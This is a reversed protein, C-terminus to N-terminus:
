WLVNIHEERCNPQPWHRHNCGLACMYSVFPVIDFFQLCGWAVSEEVGPTWVPMHPQIFAWLCLVSSCCKLPMMLAQLRKWFASCALSISCVRWWQSLFSGFIIGRLSYPSHMDSHAVWHNCVRNHASTQYVPQVAGDHYLVRDSAICGVCYARSNTLLWVCPCTRSVYSSIRISLQQSYTCGLCLKPLLVTNMKVLMSCFSWCEFCAQKIPWATWNAVCLLQFTSLANSVHQVFSDWCYLLNGRNCTVLTVNTSPKPWPM